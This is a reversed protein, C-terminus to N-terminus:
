KNKELYGCRRHVLVEHGVGGYGMRGDELQQIAEGRRAVGWPRKGVGIVWDCRGGVMWM